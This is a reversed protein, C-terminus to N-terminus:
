LKAISLFPVKLTDKLFLVGAIGVAGEDLLGISNVASWIGIQGESSDYRSLTIARFSRRAAHSIQEGRKLYSLMFREDVESGILM